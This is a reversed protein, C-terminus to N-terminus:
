TPTTAWSEEKIKIGEDFRDFLDYRQDWFRNFEYNDYKKNEEDSVRTARFAIRKKFNEPQLHVTVPVVTLLLHQCNAGM